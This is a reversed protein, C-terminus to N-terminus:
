NGSYSRFTRGAEMHQPCIRGQHSSSPSTLRHHRWSCQNMMESASVTNHPTETNKGGWDGQLFICYVVWKSPIKLTSGQMILHLCGFGRWIETSVWNCPLEGLDTSCSPVRLPLSPFLTCDVQSFSIQPQWTHVQCQLSFLLWLLRYNRSVHFNLVNVVNQLIWLLVFHHMWIEFAAM